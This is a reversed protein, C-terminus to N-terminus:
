SVLGDDKIILESAIKKAKRQEYLFVLNVIYRRIKEKTWQNETFLPDGNEDKPIDPFLGNIANVVRQVKEDPIIFTIQM